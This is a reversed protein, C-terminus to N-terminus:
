VISENTRKDAHMLRMHCDRSINEVFITYYLPCSADLRKEDRREKKAKEKNARIVLFPKLLVFLTKYKVGVLNGGNAKEVFSISKIVKERNLGLYHRQILIVLKGLETHFPPIHEGGGLGRLLYM